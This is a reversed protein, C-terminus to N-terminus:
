RCARSLELREALLAAEAAIRRAALGLVVQDLVRVRGGPEAVREAEGRRPLQTTLRPLTTHTMPSPASVPPMAYSASLLM